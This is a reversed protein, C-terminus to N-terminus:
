SISRLSTPVAFGRRESVTDGVLQGDHLTIRRQARSAVDAAHTVLIVTSGERNLQELLRLIEESTRSDLSGTPEDALILAPNNVLARAIGVRQQEGGSLQNPWHRARHALGVRELAALARRRREVPATGAYGLPLAVNEQATARPLMPATQFVFGIEAGRIAARRDEDLAGVDRGKLRYEGSDARDLLGLLSMLTSKGSGSRGVLAVFEGEDISLSVDRVADIGDSGTRHRKCLSAVRIL